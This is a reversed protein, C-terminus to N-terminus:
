PAGSGTVSFGEVKKQEERVRTKPTLSLLLWILLFVVVFYIVSVRTNHKAIFKSWAAVGLAPFLSTTLM